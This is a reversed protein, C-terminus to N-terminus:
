GSVERLVAMQLPLNCGVLETFPTPWTVADGM